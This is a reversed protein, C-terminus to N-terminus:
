DSNAPDQSSVFIPLSLLRLVIVYALGVSFQFCPWTTCFGVVVATLAVVAHRYYTRGARPARPPSAWNFAWEYNFMDRSSGDHNRCFHGRDM